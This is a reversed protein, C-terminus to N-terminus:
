SHQLFKRLSAVSFDVGGQRNIGRGDIVAAAVASKHQIMQWQREEISGRMLFDQYLVHDWTSSARMIRGNRQTATGSSWPLDYNVLMNAQPLDVGYGGADSSILVRTEPDTQFQLKNAHKEKANQLGSYQVCGYQALRAEIYSLTPVFVSFVVLKYSPDTDLFEKVYATFADLKPSNKLPDLFGEQALEFAYQSGEGNGTAFREASRRLLDPHDCLMRMCTIKSMLRGRLEDEPGGSPGDGYGYHSEVSFHGGFLEQAEELDALIDDAMRLYLKAGANDWAVRLPEKVIAQPLYPAVDPDKQSKRVAATSLRRHLTPLNQYREVGGFSNRVIFASDFDNFRGLVSRDVFEMISFVEEPKGNEIPTGTLAFRVDSKLKKILRSRKARFRKIATAEDLVIFGKPLRRVFEWDKVVQEYNVIVYDVGSEVWDMAIAYQAERQRPSGDIVLPTSPIEADKTFARIQDAWQYKLSSLCVVLGPEMIEGEDMLQEIAAITLVTKGLGLDYAVLM